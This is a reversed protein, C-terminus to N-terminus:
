TSRCSGRRRRVKWLAIRSRSHPVAARRGDRGNVEARAVSIVVRLLLDAVDRRGCQMM